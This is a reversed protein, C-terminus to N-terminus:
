TWWSCQRRGMSRMDHMIMKSNGLQIMEDATSGNGLVTITCWELKIHELTVVVIESCSWTLRYGLLYWSCIPMLRTWGWHHTLVRQLPKARLVYKQIFRSRLKLVNDMGPKTWNHLKAVQCIYRIEEMRQSQYSIKCMGLTSKQIFLFSTLLKRKKDAGNILYSEDRLSLLRTVYQKDQVSDLSYSFILLKIHKHLAIHM